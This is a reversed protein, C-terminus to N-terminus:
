GPILGLHGPDCGCARAWWDASPYDRTTGDEYPIEAIDLIRWDPRVEVGERGCKACRLTSKLDALVLDDPLGDLSMVASCNRAPDNCNVWLHRVGHNRFHAINFEM